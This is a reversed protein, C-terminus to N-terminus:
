RKTGVRKKKNKQGREPAKPLVAGPRITQFFFAFPNTHVELNFNVIGTGSNMKYSKRHADRYSVGTGHRRALIKRGSRKQKKKFYSTENVMDRIEKMSTENYERVQQFSWRLFSKKIPAAQLSYQSKPMYSKIHYGQGRENYKPVVWESSEVVKGTADVRNFRAQQNQDDLVAPELGFAEAGYAYRIGEFPGIVFIGCSDSHM